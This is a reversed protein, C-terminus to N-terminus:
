PAMMRPSRVKFPCGTARVAHPDGHCGM